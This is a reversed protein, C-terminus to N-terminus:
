QIVSFEHQLAEDLDEPQIEYIEGQPSRVRIPGKEIKEKQIKKINNALEKQRDIVYKNMEKDIKSEINAKIFGFKERDQESLRDFIELRKKQLDVKFKLGEAAILNAKPDRGIKPLAETLQQEIFMNPRAGVRTLDSLFFDKVATKLKAGKETRFPEIGTVDAIYDRLGIGPASEQIDLIAQEQLPINKRVSSFEKFLPSTIEKAESREAQERKFGMEESHMQQKQAADKQARLEKAAILGQPGSMSLSLIAEDPINAPNFGIQQENMTRGLNEEVPSKQTSDQGSFQRMLQSAFEQGQQAQQQKMQGKLQEIMAAKQLEPNSIDLGTLKRLAERDQASRKLQEQEGLIQPLAQATGRGINGILDMIGPKKREQIIQVM